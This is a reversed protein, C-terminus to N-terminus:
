FNLNEEFIKYPSGKRLEEILEQQAQIVVEQQRRQLIAERLVTRVTEGYGLHTDDLTLFKKPYKGTVKIIYYGRAQGSPIELVKSIKGQALAFAEDMFAQGARQQGASNKQLISRQAVNYGANAGRGRQLREDFTEASNNIERAMKNAEDRKRNREADNAVPFFIASFEVTEPQILETSNLEYEKEIEQATPEQISRLVDQKKALLYKQITLSKKAQERYAPLDMGTQQRLAAAFEADTPPKGMMQGMQSRLENLQQNIEGDTVVIRDREAAQMALRENIMGDLVDRRMAATLPQGMAAEVQRVQDRLMKVTIPETRILTVTAVAKLDNQASSAAIFFFMLGTAFLYRKM